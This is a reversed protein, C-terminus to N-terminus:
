AYAWDTPRAPADNIPTDGVVVTLNQGNRPVTNYIQEVKKKACVICGDSHQPGAGQHIFIGKKGTQEDPLYVSKYGKKAMLTTSCGTYTKADIRNDAAWWCSTAFKLEDDVYFSLRGSDSTWRHVVIKYSAM